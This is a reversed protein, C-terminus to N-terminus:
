GNKVDGNLIRFAVYQKIEREFDAPTLESYDTELYAEACWEDDSGVEAAVSQGKISERNRYRELLRVM